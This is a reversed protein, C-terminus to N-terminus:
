EGVFSFDDGGGGGGGGKGAVGSGAAPVHLGAFVFQSRKLDTTEELLVYRACFSLRLM